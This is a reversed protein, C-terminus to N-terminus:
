ARGQRQRSRGGQTRITSPDCEGTGSAVPETMRALMAQMSKREGDSFVGQVCTRLSLLQARHGFCPKFQELWRVLRQVRQASRDPM